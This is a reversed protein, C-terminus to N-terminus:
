MKQISKLYKLYVFVTCKNSQNPSLAASLTLCTSIAASPNAPGAQIIKTM